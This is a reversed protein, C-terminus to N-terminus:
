GTVEKNSQEPLQKIWQECINTLEEPNFEAHSKYPASSILMGLQNSFFTDQTLQNLQDVWQKGTLSAVSERPLYCLAVRRLLTSIARLQEISAEKSAEKQNFDQRIKHLERMAIKKYAPQPKFNRKYKILLYVAAAIILLLVPLLWWGIAPPWWSVAEPLHIDRLPLNQIPSQNM